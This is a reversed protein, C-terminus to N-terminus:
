LNYIQTGKPPAFEAIEDAIGVEVAEKASLTLDHHEIEKWQDETLKTHRRLIAETREDDLVLSKAAAQLRSASAFQPSVSTRHVMFTAYRSARRKQAGVFAVTGISAVSGANYLTLEIPLARFYNYLMIGDGVVGGWSQFLLHVRKINAGMATAMGQLIRGATAQDIGGAFTAYVDETQQTQPATM